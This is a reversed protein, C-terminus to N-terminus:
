AGRRAEGIGSTWAMAEGQTCTESCASTDTRREARRQPSRAPRGAQAIVSGAGARKDQEWHTLTRLLAHLAAKMKLDSQWEVDDSGVVREANPSTHGISLRNRSMHAFFRPPNPVIRTMECRDVPM